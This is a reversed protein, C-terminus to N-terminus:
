VGIWDKDMSLTNLEIRVRNTPYRTTELELLKWYFRWELAELAHLYALIDLYQGEIVLEVPHVYPGAANSAQEAAATAAAQESATTNLFTEKAAAAAPPTLTTMPKNHLSILTVGHQGALVDQLVEVMREPPILGASKSALKGNIEALEARLQTEKAIAATAPDGAAADSMTQASVGISEHLSALEGALATERARLPDYLAVTWGMVLVALAAIGMLGRERISMRDFRTAATEIAAPLRM